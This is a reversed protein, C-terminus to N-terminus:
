ETEKQFTPSFRKRDEMYSAYNNTMEALAREELPIRVSLMWANLVTFVIATYFAHFMLPILLIELVVITYNPHRLFKYPGTKVISADPLILVKTNWYKGLSQISWVRLSQTMIFLILIAPWFPSLTRDFLIVELLFCTLFAVHLSVMYKYHEKGYEKAGVSRIWKENKRAIGLEVVRQTVIFAFFLAFIM